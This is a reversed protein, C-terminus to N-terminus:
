FNRHADALVPPPICIKNNRPLLSIPRRLICAEYEETEGLNYINGHLKQNQFFIDLELDILRAVTLSDHIVFAHEIDEDYLVIKDCLKLRVAEQHFNPPCWGDKRGYFLTIKSAFQRFIDLDVTQVYKLEDRALHLVNKAIRYDCLNGAARLVSHPTSKQRGNDVLIKDGLRWRILRNRLWSPLFSLVYTAFILLYHLKYDFIKSLRLGNPTQQMREFVPFLLFCHRVDYGLKGVLIALKKLVMYAGISHGALFLKCEKPIYASIFELKHEIQESLNYSASDYQWHHYDHNSHSIVVFTFDPKRVSLQTLFEEYFSCAGPNGPIFLLVNHHHLNDLNNDVKLLNLAGINFIQVKTNSLDVWSYM